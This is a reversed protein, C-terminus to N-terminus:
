NSERNNSNRVRMQHLDRTQIIIGDDAEFVTMLTRAGNGSLDEVILEKDIDNQRLIHEIM